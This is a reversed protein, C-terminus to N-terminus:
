LTQYLMSKGLLVIQITSTAFIMKYPFKHYNNAGNVKILIHITLTSIRYNRWQFLKTDDHLIDTLPINGLDSDSSIFNM